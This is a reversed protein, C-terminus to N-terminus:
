RIIERAKVMMVMGNWARKWGQFLDHWGFYSPVITWACEPVARDGMIGREWRRVFPLLSWTKRGVKGGGYGM